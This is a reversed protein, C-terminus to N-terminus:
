PRRAIEADASSEMKAEVALCRILHQLQERANADPCAAIATVLARAVRIGQITGADHEAAPGLRRLFADIEQPTQPAM